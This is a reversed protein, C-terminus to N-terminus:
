RGPIRIRLSQVPGYSAHGKYNPDDFETFGIKKFHDIIRPAVVRHISVSEAFWTYQPAVVQSLHQLLLQMAIEGFGKGRKSPIIGYYRLRLTDPFTEDYTYWGTIGIVKGNEHISFIEGTSDGGDCGWEEYSERAEQQLSPIEWIQNLNPIQNFLNFNEPPSLKHLVIM